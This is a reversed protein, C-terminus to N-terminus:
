QSNAPDNPLDIGFVCCKYRLAPSPVISALDSLIADPNLATQCACPEQPLQQILAAVVQVPKDGYQALNDNVLEQKVARHRPNYCDYDAALGMVAFCMNAERAFRATPMVTMGIAKAGHVERWLKSMARTSFQPGEICTWTGQFEIDDITIGQREICVQLMAESFQACVPHAMSVHVAIEDFLTDARKTTQDIFQDPIFISRGPIIKESLSGFASILLLHTVGLKKMGFINAQYPIRTPNFEHHQGHQRLVVIARGRLKGTYFQDAAPGYPTKGMPVEKADTMHALLADIGKTGSLIGLVPNTIQKDKGMQQGKHKTTKFHVLKYKVHKQHFHL